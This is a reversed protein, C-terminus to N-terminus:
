LNTDCLASVQAPTPLVEHVVRNNVTIRCGVNGGSLSVTGASMYPDSLDYDGTRYVHEYPLTVDEQSTTGERSYVVTASGSGLFEVKTVFTEPTPTPAPAPAPAPAPVSKRAETATPRPSKPMATWDASPGDTTSRGASPTQDAATCGTLILLAILAPGILARSTM